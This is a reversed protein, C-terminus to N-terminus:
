RHSTPPDLRQQRGRPSMPSLTTVPERVRTPHPGSAALLVRLRYNDFSRIGAAELATGVLDACALGAADHDPVLVVRAGRLVHALRDVQPTAAGGAWTTAYIGAGCLADVSSESECVVVIEGAGVAMRVEREQYLPLASVPVGLLGPISVGGRVTYWRLDKSGSM